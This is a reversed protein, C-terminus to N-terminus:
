ETEGLPVLVFVAYYGGYAAEVWADPHHGPGLPSWGRVFRGDPLPIAGFFAFTEESCAFVHTAGESAAGSNDAVDQGVRAAFEELTGLCEVEVVYELDRGAEERESEHVLYARFKDGAKM